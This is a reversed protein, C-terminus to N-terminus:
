SHLQNCHYKCNRYERASTTLQPRCLFSPVRWCIVAGVMDLGEPNDTIKVRTAQSPRMEPTREVSSKQPSNPDVVSFPTENVTPRISDTSKQNATQTEAGELLGCQLSTGHKNMEKGLVYIEKRKLIISIAMEDEESVILM